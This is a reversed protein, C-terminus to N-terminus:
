WRKKYNINGPAGRDRKLFVDRGIKVCLLFPASHSNKKYQVYTKTSFMLHTLMNLLKVM